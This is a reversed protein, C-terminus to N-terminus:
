SIHLDASRPIINDSMFNIVFCPPLLPVKTLFYYFIDVLTYLIPLDNNIGKVIFINRKKISRKSESNTLPEGVSLTIRNTINM